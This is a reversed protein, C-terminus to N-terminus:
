LCMKLHLLLLDCGQKKCSVNEGGESGLLEDDLGALEDIEEEAAAQEEDIILGAEQLYDFYDAEVQEIDTERTQLFAAEMMMSDLDVLGSLDPSGQLSNTIESIQIPRDKDVDKQLKWCLTRMYKLFITAERSRNEALALKHELESNQMTIKRNERHANSVEDEMKRKEQVLLENQRRLVVSESQIDTLLSEAKDRDNMADLTKDSPVIKALESSLNRWYPIEEENSYIADEILLSKRCPNLVSEEAEAIEEVSEWIATSFGDKISPDEISTEYLDTAIEKMNKSLVGLRMESQLLWKRYDEMSADLNVMCDNTVRRVRQGLRISNITESINYSSPSATIFLTSKCNGGLADKLISTLKSERYPAYKNGETLSKIVNGLASFSKHIIKTEQVSQGKAKSTVEFGALEALHLYSRRISGSQVHRQEINLLLISHSRNHDIKLKSGILKRCAAGRRILHIIDEATFCFAEVAGEIRIGNAADRVILGKDFRPDLLDFMKELYICVYSCTIRFEITSPADKMSRFLDDILRPSFGADEESPVHDTDTSSDDDSSDSSDEDKLEPLKGALTHTKGSGTLGYVMVACNIGAMIHEVISVGVTEYVDEQNCDVDFVNDFCFDYEGDIPSDVTFERNGDHVEICNKSRRNRELKTMPRLRLCVKVPCPGIEIDPHPEDWPDEVEEDVMHVSNPAIDNDDLNQTPPAEGSNDLQSMKQRELEELTKQAKKIEDEQNSTIKKLEENRKKHEALEQRLREIELSAKSRTRSPTKSEAPLPEDNLEIPEPAREEEVLVSEKRPRETKKKNQVVSRGRDIEEEVDNEAAALQRLESEDDQTQQLRDFEAQAAALDRQIQSALQGDYKMSSLEKTVELLQQEMETASLSERFGSNKLEQKADILDAEMRKAASELLDSVHSLERIPDGTPGVGPAEPLLNLLKGAADLEQYTKQLSKQSREALSQSDDPTNEDLLEPEFLNSKSRTGSRKPQPQKKPPEPAEEKRGSVYTGFKMASLSETADRSMPSTTVIMWIGSGKSLADHMLKTFISEGYPVSRRSGEALTRLCKRVASLSKRISKCERYFDDSADSPPKKALASNAMDVLFLNSTAMKGRSRSYREMKLIIIAHAKTTDTNLRTNRETRLSQGKEIAKNFDAENRCTITTASEIYVGQDPNSRVSLSVDDDEFKGRHLLDVIKEKHVEVYSIKLKPDDKESGGRKRRKRFLSYIEHATRPIIGNEEDFGAEDSTSKVARGALIQQPPQLSNESVSRADLQTRSVGGSHLSSLDDDVDDDDDAPSPGMMTYTKGSGRDGYCLVCCNRGMMFDSVLPAVVKQFVTSQSSKEDFVRDFDFHHTGESSRISVRKRDVSAHVCGFREDRQEERSLPRVRLAVKVPASRSSSM